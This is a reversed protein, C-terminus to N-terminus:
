NHHYRKSGPQRRYGVETLPAQFFFLKLLIGFAIPVVIVASIAGIAVPNM